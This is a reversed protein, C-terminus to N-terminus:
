RSEEHDQGLNGDRREVIGQRAVQALGIDGVAAPLSIERETPM